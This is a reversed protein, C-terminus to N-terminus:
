GITGVASGMGGCLEGTSVPDSNLGVIEALDLCTALHVGWELRASVRGVM